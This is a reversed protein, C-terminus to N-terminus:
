NKRFKKEYYYKSSLMQLVCIYLKYCASHKFNLPIPERLHIKNKLNKKESLNNLFCGIPILIHFIAM